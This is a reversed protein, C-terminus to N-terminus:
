TQEIAEVLDLSTAVTALLVKDTANDDTHTVENTQSPEGPDRETADEESGVLPLASPRGSSRNRAVPISSSKKTPLEDCNNQPMFHLVVTTTGTMTLDSHTFASIFVRGHRRLGAQLSITLRPTIVKCKVFGFWDSNYVEPNYIKVPHGVPFSDYFMVTPYLSCVDIHRIKQPKRCKYILKTANTRGGYFADRPNLPTIVEHELHINREPLKKYDCEWMEILNYM